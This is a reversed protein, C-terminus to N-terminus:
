SEEFLGQAIIPFPEALSIRCYGKFKEAFNEGLVLFVNKERILDELCLKEKMKAFFCLAAIRDISNIEFFLSQPDLSLLYSLNNSITKKNKEILLPAKNLVWKAITESLTNNRLSLYNKFSSLDLILRETDKEPLTIWGLRLGPMNFSKSLDCISIGAEYIDVAARSTQLSIPLFVEDSILWRGSLINSITNLEMESFVSGIPNNPNNIILAKTHPKKKILSELKNLDWTMSETDLDWDIICVGKDEAVQYLSQYIPKQVIISDGKEFLCNMLLFIAESAGTTLLINQKQLNPYLTKILLKRTTESGFKESYDLKNEFVEKRFFEKEEESYYDLLDNLSMAPMCASSLNHQYSGEYKNYLNELLFPSHQQAAASRIM